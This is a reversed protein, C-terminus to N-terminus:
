VIQLQECFAACELVAQFITMLLVRQVGIGAINAKAQPAHQRDDETQGSAKVPVPDM